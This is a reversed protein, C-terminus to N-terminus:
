MRSMMEAMGETKVLPLAMPGNMRPTMVRPKPVPAKLALMEGKIASCYRWLLGRTIMSGLVPARTMESGLM